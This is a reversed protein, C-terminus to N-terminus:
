NIFAGCNGLVLYSFQQVSKICKDDAADKCYKLSVCPNSLIAITKVNRLNSFNADIRRIENSDFLIEELKLNNNFMNAPVYQFKNSRAKFVRLKSMTKIWDAELTKIKNRCIDILEVNKLDLFTDPPIVEIENDSILFFKLPELGKLEKRDIKKLKTFTIGFGNLNPFTQMVKTMEPFNTVKGGKMHMVSVDRSTRGSKHTGGNINLTIENDPAILDDIYCGYTTGANRFTCQANVLNSNLSQASGDGDDFSNFVSDFSNANETVSIETKVWNSFKAVDTFLVFDNTGCEQIVAASVIGTIQFSKGNNVYYGSGSDGQCPTKGREGACFTRPSAFKAFNYDNFFCDENTISKITVKRPHKEHTLQSESKGYGVVTGTTKIPSYGPNPLCVPQVVESYKIPDRLVLIAIDADFRTDKPNWAPNLIIRKVDSKISKPENISPTIDLRGIYAYIDSASKPGLSQKGYICHAATLVHQHSILNGSCFFQDNRKLFLSVVWPWEGETVASGGYILQHASQQRGCSEQTATSKLCVILIWFTLIRALFGM